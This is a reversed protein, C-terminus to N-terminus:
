SHCHYSINSPTYAGDLIVRGFSGDSLGPTWYLDGGDMYLADRVVAAVNTLSNLSM